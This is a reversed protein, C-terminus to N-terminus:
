LGRFGADEACSQIVIFEQIPLKVHIIVNYGVVVAQEERGPQLLFPLIILPDQTEQPMVDEFLVLTTRAQGAALALVHPGGNSAAFLGALFRVVEWATHLAAHQILVKAGEVRVADFVLWNLIYDDFAGTSFSRTRDAVFVDRCAGAEVDEPGRAAFLLRPEVSDAHLLEGQVGPVEELAGDAAVVRQEAALHLLAANVNGLLVSRPLQFGVSELLQDLSVVLTVVGSTDARFTARVVALSRLISTM